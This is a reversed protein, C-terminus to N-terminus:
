CITCPSIQGEREAILTDINEGANSKNLNEKSMQPILIVGNGENNIEKAEPNNGNSKNNGKAEPNNGNIKNNGKEVPKNGNSKNNGKAVPKNKSENNGNDKGNKPPM